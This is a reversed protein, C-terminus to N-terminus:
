LRRVRRLAMKRESELGVLSKPKEPLPLSPKKNEKSMSRLAYRPTAAVTYTDGVFAASVTKKLTKKPDRGKSSKVNVGLKYPTSKSFDISSAEREGGYKKKTLRENRRASYADYLKGREFLSCSSPDCSLSLNTSAVNGLEQNVMKTLARMEWSITHCEPRLDSEQEVNWMPKQPKIMSGLPSHPPRLRMPSKALPPKGATRMMSM